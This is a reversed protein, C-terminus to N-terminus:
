RLMNRQGKGEERGENSGGKMRRFLSQSIAHESGQYLPDVEIM